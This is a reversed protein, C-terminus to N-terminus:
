DKARWAWAGRADKERTIRGAQHLHNLHAVAEVLALGYTGGDIKRKFLVPFTEAATKPERLFAELRELGKVHNDKLQKMRFPLGKFVRKHGSLVIHDERALAEFKECSAIWDAVPDAEPETAYVGINPSISSIIQDGALVLGDDRSWFTLHEPAHGGGTYIDWTRGGAKLTDGEQLRTYGIPIPACMDAFNYPREGSRKEIIEEDMGAARWFDIAQPTVEEEVDLILMRSLLWATRSTAFAAGRAMLWGVMGIHDPHHHTAIVRHVPKGRLAGNLLGEWIAISKKSRVGTDVITWGDGDDLAYVNVHDLAMPLPLRIWLVGEAVEIHEAPAPPEEWPFSLGRAPLSEQKTM